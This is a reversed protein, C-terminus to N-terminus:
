EDDYRALGCSVLYEFLKSAIVRHGEPTFHNSDIYYVKAADAHAGLIEEPAAGDARMSAAREPDVILGRFTETLDLVAVGSRRAHDALLRQPACYAEDVLQNSYPFVILLPPVGHADLLSYFGDLEGLVRTWADRYRPETGAGVLMDRVNYDELQKRKEIPARSRRVYQVLRGFGTENVLYGVLESQTQQVDHYDIGTGGLERHIQYPETVDNMCFGLAVLDPEFRLGDRATATDQAVAYGAVGGNIVQHTAHSTDRADLLEELRESYTGAADVTYGMTVSDGVVLVRLEGDPKAAPFEDDRHGHSNIRWVNSHEGRMHRVAGPRHKFHADADFVWLPLGFYALLLRDACLVLAVGVAFVAGKARMGSAASTSSSGGVFRGLGVLVVGCALATWAYLTFVDRYNLEMGGKWLRVTLPSIAIASLIMALGVFHALRGVTKSSSAATM